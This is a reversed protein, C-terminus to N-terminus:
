TSIFGHPDHKIRKFLRERWKNVFNLPMVIYEDGEGDGISSLFAEREAMQEPTMGYWASSHPAIFFFPKLVKAYSSVFAYLDELLRESVSAKTALSSQESYKPRERLSNLYEESEISLGLALSSSFSHTSDDLLHVPITFLGSQCDSSLSGVYEFGSGANSQSIYVGIGTGPPLVSTLFVVFSRSTTVTLPATWRTPDICHFSSVAPQGPVVLACPALSIDPNTTEDPGYTWTDPNFM